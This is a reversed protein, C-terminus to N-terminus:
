SFKLSVDLKMKMASALKVLTSFSVNFSGSEIKSVTSRQVKAMQALEAQTLGKQERAKKFSVSLYYYLSEEAVIKKQEESFDRSFEKLSITKPQKNM